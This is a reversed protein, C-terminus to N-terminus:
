PWMQVCKHSFRDTPWHTSITIQVCQDTNASQSTISGRILNYLGVGGESQRVHANGDLQHCCMSWQVTDRIWFKSVSWMQKLSEFAFSVGPITEHFELLVHLPRTHVNQYMKVKSLSSKKVIICCLPINPFFQVSYICQTNYLTRQECIHQYRLPINSRIAVLLIHGFHSWHSRFTHIIIQWRKSQELTSSIM